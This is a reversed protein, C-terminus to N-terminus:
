KREMFQVKDNVRKLVVSGGGIPLDFAYVMDKEPLLVMLFDNEAEKSIDVVVEEPSSLRKDYYISDNIQLQVSDGVHTEDLYINYHTVSKDEVAGQPFCWMWFFIVVCFVVVAMAMIAFMFTRNHNPRKKRM